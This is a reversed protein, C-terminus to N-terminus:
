EVLTATMKIDKTNVVLTYKGSQGESITWQNDTTSNGQIYAIEMDTGPTFAAREVEPMYWYVRGDFGLDNRTAIKITRDNGEDDQGGILTVQGTYIGSGLETEELAEGADLSWGALCGKGIVYLKGLLLEATLQMNRIDVTLKYRGEQEESVLWKDDIGSGEKVEKMPMPSDLTFDASGDAMYWYLREDGPGFINSQAIKIEGKNLYLEGSYVGEGTSSLEVSKEIDWGAKCGDGFVYLAEPAENPKVTIDTNGMEEDTWNGITVGSLEMGVGEGTRFNVKYTYKTNEKFTVSSPIVTTYETGNLTFTLTREAAANNDGNPAVIAEAMNSGNFKMNVEKLDGGVALTGELVNYKLDTKQNNIKVKLDSIHLGEEATINLIIKSLKHSFNINAKPNSVSVGECEAAMLDIASQSEQKSLDISYLNNDDVTGQPYYAKIKVAGEAPLYAVSGAAAFDGNGDATVYKFNKVDEVIQNEADLMYVGIADGAEWRNDIARTMQVEVGGTIQLPVRGNNQMQEEVENSCGAMVMAAMAALIM